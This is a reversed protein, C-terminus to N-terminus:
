SKTLTVEKRCLYGLYFWPNGFGKPIYLQLEINPKLAERGKKSYMSYLVQQDSNVLKQDLFYKVARHYLQEFQLFVEGKGLFMGGGVWVINNRFITFPDINMSVVNIRNFSIKNANFKPPISLSFELKREVVDRFYGIDLWAYYPNQFVKKRITEAVAAFKSHQAAPYEPIVTNPHHKPYGLQDLVSRIQNILQFPWLEKRNLLYIMTNNLRDSRLTEMLEKFEKCDTYVVLPNVLYKFTSAWKFYTNTSFKLDGEGKQFTGLNWYATVITLNPKPGNFQNMVMPKSFPKSTTGNFQNMVMPKSFPKPTTGNFQNMVMPKSFPKPTTGNLNNTVKPKKSPNPSLVTSHGKKTSPSVMSHGKHPSSFMTVSPIEKQTPSYITPYRKQTQFIETTSHGKRTPLFVTSLRKKTLMLVTPDQGKQTSSFVTPTAIDKETSYFVDLTIFKETFNLLAKGGPLAASIRLRIPYDILTGFSADTLEISDLGSVDDHIERIIWSGFRGPRSVDKVGPCSVDPDQFM